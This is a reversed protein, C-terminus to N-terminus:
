RRSLSVSSASTTLSGPAVAVALGTLGIQIGALTVQESAVTGTDVVIVGAVFVSAIVATLLIPRAMEKLFPFLLLLLM